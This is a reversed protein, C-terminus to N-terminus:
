RYYIRKFDENSPNLFLGNRDFEGCRVGFYDDIAKKTEMYSLSYYSAGSKKATVAEGPATLMVAKESDYERLFSIFFAIDDAGVDTDTKGILSMALSVAKVPSLSNSAKDMVARMFVKQADIRGLDGNVYGSRYRVFQEAKEGDLLHKGKQLYVTFNQYPDDYYFTRDLEVEVGGLADVADRFGDPSLMIYRDIVIGFANSLLDRVDDGNGFYNYAGNLKKYNGDTYRAYTDRPIQMVALRGDSNMRVLMMVDTLGTTRDSGMVLVNMGSRESQAVSLTAERAAKARGIEEGVFVFLGILAVLIVVIITIAKVKAYRFM